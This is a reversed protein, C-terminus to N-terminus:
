RAHDVDHELKERLYERSEENDLEENYDGGTASLEEITTGSSSSISSNDSRHAKRTFHGILLTLLGILAAALSVVDIVGLAIELPQPLGSLLGRMWIDPATPLTMLAATGFFLGSAVRLENDKPVRLGLEETPEYKALLERWKGRWFQWGCVVFPISGLTLFITVFVIM